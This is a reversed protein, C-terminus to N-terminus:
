YASAPEKVLRQLTVMHRKLYLLDDIASWFHDWRDDGAAMRRANFRLWAMSRGAVADLCQVEIRPEPSVRRYHRLFASALAQDFGGDSTRSWAILSLAAEVGPDVPGAFEWDIIHPDGWRWLVNSPVLDGHGILVPRGMLSPVASSYRRSWGTLLRILLPKSISRPGYSSGSRDSRGCSAGRVRESAPSHSIDLQQLLDNWAEEPVVPWLVEGGHPVRFGGAVKMAHLKGLVTGMAAVSDTSRGVTDEVADEVNPFALAYSGSRLALLPDGNRTLAPVAPLGHERAARAVEEARRLRWHAERPVVTSSLVKVILSLGDRTRGRLVHHLSGGRLIQVPVDEAAYELRECAEHFLRGSDRQEACASM